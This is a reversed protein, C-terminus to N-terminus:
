RYYTGVLDVPVKDSLVECLEEKCDVFGKRWANEVEKLEPSSQLSFSKTIHSSAIRNRVVFASTSDFLSLLLLLNLISIMMM